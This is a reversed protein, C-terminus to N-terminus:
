SKSRKSAVTQAKHRILFRVRDMTKADIKTKVLMGDENYDVGTVQTYDHLYSLIDGRDYPVLITEESALSSVAIEIGHLLEELNWGTKASVPYVSGEVQPRVAGPADAKNYVFLRPKDGAHLSVLVEDVVQRHMDVFPSSADLVILLLDAYMAEELTSRFADVLDHPLKNIFGVTDTLLCATGGPLTLRRTIPDLTAFLQDAVLADSQTFANLLTTKGANTYGVLAIVKQEQRTRRTRRVDRQNKVQKLEREIDTIRRRIRRRDTELKTEGPGRTGIGGGLRSLETGEGLLRPLQYRLQALEVQMKGEATQAHQAFIDLILRTRDIVRVGLLEELNREQVATIEDDVICLNCSSGQLALRLEEAKGKGIYTASDPAARNQAVKGIVVAGATDALQELELLSPDENSDYLGLLVAREETENEKELYFLKDTGAIRQIWEKDPIRDYPVPPLLLFPHEPDEPNLFATSISTPRGDADVALASMADLRLQRLSNLDPDSLESDDVPHTHICRIGSLRASGRRENMPRLSVTAADGVSVDLVRGARNIYVSIERNIQHTLAALMELLESSAFVDRDLVIQYVEEIKDLLSRRLGSLNGQVKQM